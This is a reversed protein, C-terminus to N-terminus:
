GPSHGSVVSDSASRASAPARSTSALIPASRLARPTADVAYAPRRPRMRSVTRLYEARRRVAARLGDEAKTLWADVLERLGEDM